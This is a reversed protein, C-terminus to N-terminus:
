PWGQPSGSARSAAKVAKTEESSGVEIPHLSLFRVAVVDPSGLVVLKPRAPGSASVTPFERRQAQHGIAIISAREL